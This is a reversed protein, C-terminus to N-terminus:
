KCLIKIELLWDRLIEPRFKRTKVLSQCNSILHVNLSDYFHTKGIEYCSEGVSCERLIEPGFPKELTSSRILNWATSNFQIGKSIM